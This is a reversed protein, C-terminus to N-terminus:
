AKPKAFKSDEIAVNNKVETFNTILEFQPLVTRTRFPVKVGDVERYDELFTKGAMKGEPTITTSDQRVLLGSKTDFYFTETPLNDPMAVVVYADDAGIKEIGRVEMKPYIKDLNTERNFNNTLKSQALEEGQKDRNGQIPNMSWATTGDFGEVLEGIGVLTVKAISKNPAASYNEFTGKIGM